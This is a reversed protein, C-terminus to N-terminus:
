GYLIQQYFDRWCLQRVFPDAGDRGGVRAAVERPSVCGFHLYPSLRSTDDAAM